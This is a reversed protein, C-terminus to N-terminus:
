KWLIQKNRNIKKLISLGPNFPLTVIEWEDIYNQKIHLATKYADDCFKPTLAAPFHWFYNSINM